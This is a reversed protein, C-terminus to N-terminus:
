EFFGGKGSNYFLGSFDIDLEPFLIFILAAALSGGLFLRM